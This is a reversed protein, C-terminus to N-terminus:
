RSDLFSIIGKMLSTYLEFRGGGEERNGMREEVEGESMGEHEEGKMTWEKRM